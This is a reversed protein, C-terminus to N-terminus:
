VCAKGAAVARIRAEWAHKNEVKGGGNFYAEGVWQVIDIGVGSSYTPWIGRLTRGKGQQVLDTVVGSKTPAVWVLEVYMLVDIGM